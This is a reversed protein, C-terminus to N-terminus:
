LYTSADFSLTTKQESSLEKINRSLRNANLELEKAVEAFVEHDHLNNRVERENNYSSTVKYGKQDSLLELNRAYRRIEKALQIAQIITLEQSGFGYAFFPNQLMSSNNLENIKRSIELVHTTTKRYMKLAENLEEVSQEDVVFTDNENQGYNTTVFAGKKAKLLYSDQHQYVVSQMELLEDLTYEM